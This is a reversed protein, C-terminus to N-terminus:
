LASVRFGQISCRHILAYYQKQIECLRLSMHLCNQEALKKCLKHNNASVENFICTGM